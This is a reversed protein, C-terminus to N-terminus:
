GLGFVRRVAATVPRGRDLFLGASLAAGTFSVCLVHKPNDHAHLRMRPVRLHDCIVYSLHEPLTEVHQIRHLADLESLTEM